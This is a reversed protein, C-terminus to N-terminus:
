VIAVVVSRGGAAVTGGAGVPGSAPNWEGGVAHVGSQDRGPGVGGPGDHQRWAASGPHSRRRGVLRRRAGSAGVASPCRSLRHIALPLILPPPGFLSDNHEPWASTPNRSPPSILPDIATNSAMFLNLLAKLLRECSSSNALSM